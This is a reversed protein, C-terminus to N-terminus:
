VGYVSYAGGSPETYVIIRQIGRDRNVRIVQGAGRPLRADIRVKQVNGDLYEVAIQNIMPAGREAEIRIRDFNGHRGRLNIFQRRADASFGRALPVWRNRYDRHWRSTDFRDYNDRDHDYRDYRDSPRERVPDAYAASSAAILLTTLLTIRRM